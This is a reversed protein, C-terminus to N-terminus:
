ELDDLSDYDFDFKWQVLTTWLYFFPLILVFAQVVTSIMTEVTYYSYERAMGFAVMSLPLANILVAAQLQHPHLFDPDVKEILCCVGFMVAASLFNRIFSGIIIVPLNFPIKFTRTNEQKDTGTGESSEEEEEEEEETAGDADLSDANVSATTDSVLLPTTEDVTGPASDAPHHDGKIKRKVAAWNVKM